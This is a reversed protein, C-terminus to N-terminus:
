RREGKAPARVARHEAIVQVFDSDDRTALASESLVGLLATVIVGAAALGGVTM